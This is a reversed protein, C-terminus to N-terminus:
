ANRKAEWSDTLIKCIHNVAEDVDDNIVQYRYRHALGLEYQAHELRQRIAEESETGRLVLRRRLDDISSPRVFISVADEYRDM